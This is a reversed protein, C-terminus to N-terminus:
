RVSFEARNLIPAFVQSSVNGITTQMAEYVIPLAFLAGGAALRIAGHKLETQQPNEVHDKVKLIGLVGLLTGLIYSLSSILGPIEDISNNINRAITNFNNGGSSNNANSTSFLYPESYVIEDTPLLHISDDYGPDRFFPDDPDIEEVDLTIYGQAAVDNESM